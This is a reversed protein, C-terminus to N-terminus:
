LDKLIETKKADYEAKSIMQNQYRTRLEGLRERVTLTTQPLLAPASPVAPATPAAALPPRPAGGVAQQSQMRYRMEQEMQMRVEERIQARLDIRPAAAPIEPPMQAQIEQRIQARMSPQYAARMEPTMDKLRLSSPKPAAALADYQDMNDLEYQIEKFILNSWNRATPSNYFSSTITLGTSKGGAVEIVTRMPNSRDRRLFVGIEEVGAAKGRIVGGAENSTTVSINRGAAAMAARWVRQYSQNEVVYKSGTGPKAPVADGACGTLVALVFLVLISRAQTM